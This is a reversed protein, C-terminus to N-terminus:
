SGGAGLAKAAVSHKTSASLCVYRIVCGREDEAPSQTSRCRRLPGEARKLLLQELLLVPLLQAEAGLELLHLILFVGESLLQLLLLLGLAVQLLLDGGEM